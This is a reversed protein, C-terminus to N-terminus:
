FVEIFLLPLIATIIGNTKDVINVITSIKKNLSTDPCNTTLGSKVIILKKSSYKNDATVDNYM